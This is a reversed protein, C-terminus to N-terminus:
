FPLTIVWSTFSFYKGLWICIQFIFAAIPVIVGGVILIWEVTTMGAEDHHFNRILKYM